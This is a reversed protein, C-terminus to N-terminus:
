RYFRLAQADEGLREHSLAIRYVVDPHRFVDYADMFFRLSRDFDGRDYAGVGAEILGVFERKEAESLAEFAQEPTLDEAWVPSTAFLLSMVLAICGLVHKMM